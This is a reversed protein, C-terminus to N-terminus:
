NVNIESLLTVGFLGLNLSFELNLVRARRRGRFDQDKVILIVSCLLQPVIPLGRRGCKPGPKALPYPLLILEVSELVQNRVLEGLCTV